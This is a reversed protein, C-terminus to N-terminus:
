SMPEVVVGHPSVYVLGRRRSEKILQKLFIREDKVIPNSRLYERFFRFRDVGTINRPTSTNLQLLSKSLKKGDVKEDLRVDELDLLHFDWTEGDESILINCTKMDQHYLNMRHFHSLWQAFTKIFLRKKRVDKFGELIYRDLERGIEHTEMVLFTETLGFWSKREVFALPLLSPIGRARLGNGALWAKLGKSRRFHEKFVNWFHPYRFQKVCVKKEGGKLISVMVEPSYKALSLPKEKVLSRHEEIVRKLQDLPLNKRHYYHVGKEKEISFETSEKLCRKTRSKWRRRKRFDMFSHVKQLYVEKKQFSDTKGEFYKGIFQLREDEGWVSRLSHFLQSFNWLRQDLSLSRVIEARHLDTLYFSEGDWLFNGVHLDHHFLGADHFKKLTKALNPLAFPSGLIVSDKILSVGSGIAESLYYSEKVFGHHVKEMWGLPQPIQFNRKQLRYGLSWEKRAKSPLFFYKLSGIWGKTRDRKFFIRRGNPLTLIAAWRLKSEKIVKGGMEKASVSPNEFFISPFANFIEERVWGRIEGTTIKKFSSRGLM